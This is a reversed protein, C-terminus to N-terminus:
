NSLFLFFGSEIVRFVLVKAFECKCIEKKSRKRVKHHKASLESVSALRKDEASHMSRQIQELMKISM